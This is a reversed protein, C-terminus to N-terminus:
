QESVGVDGTINGGPFSNSQFKALNQLIEPKMVKCVKPAKCPKLTVCGGCTM